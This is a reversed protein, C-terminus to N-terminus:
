NAADVPTSDSSGYDARGINERSMLNKRDGNKGTETIPLVFLGAMLLAAAIFILGPWAAGSMDMLKGAVSPGIFGGTNGLMMIVGVATGSLATGIREMEVPVIFTIPAFTGICAGVLLMAILLPNGTLVVLLPVCLGALLAPIVLFPKRKGVKDSLAGGVFNFLVNTGMMMSVLQGPRQIGREALAVPLLSLLGMVAVMYFGWFTAMLMVERDKFVMKFNKSSNRPQTTGVTNDGGEKYFLVWLIAMILSCVGIGVMCGRWGGFAPSLREAATGMAVAVGSGTAAVCIGNAQALIHSPFWVGLTKPINPAAIALGAGLMFMMFILGNPTGVFCRSAGCIAVVLAGLGIAGRCGVKDGLMGGIPSFFLAALMTVGVVAGMQAKSLPIQVSIEKFMPPISYIAMSAFFVLLFLLSLIVWRYASEHDNM